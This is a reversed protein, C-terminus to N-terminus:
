WAGENFNLSALCPHWIAMRITQEFSQYKPPWIVFHLSNKFCFFYVSTLICHEMPNSFYIVMKFKFIQKYLFESRNFNLQLLCLQSISDVPFCRVQSWAQMRIDRNGYKSSYANCKRSFLQYAGRWFTLKTLKIRFIIISYNICKNARGVLLYGGGGGRGFLCRM